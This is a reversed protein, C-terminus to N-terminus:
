FGPPPPTEPHAQVTGQPHCEALTQTERITVSKLPGPLEGPRWLWSILPHDRLPLRLVLAASTCSLQGRTPAPAPAHPRAPGRLCRGSSTPPRPPVSIAGAPFRLLTPSLFPFSSLLPLAQPKLFPFSFFHRKGALSLCSPTLHHGAALLSRSTPVESTQGSGGEWLKVMPQRQAPSPPVPGGPLHTQSSM